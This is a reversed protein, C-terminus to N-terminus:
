RRCSVDSYASRRPPRLGRRGAVGAAHLVERRQQRRACIAVANPQQFGIRASPWLLATLRARARNKRAPAIRFHAQGGAASRAPELRDPHWLRRDEFATLDDLLEVEPFFLPAQLPRRQFTFLDLFSQDDRPLRTLSSPPAM